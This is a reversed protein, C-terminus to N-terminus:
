LLCYWFTKFTKLFIGGNMWWTNVSPLVWALCVGLCWPYLALTMGEQPKHELRPSLYDDLFCLYLKHYFYTFSGTHNHLHIHPPPPKSKLYPPWPWRRRISFINSYLDLNRTPFSVSSTPASPVALTFSRPLFSSLKKSSGRSPLHPHIMTFSAPQLPPTSFPPCIKFSLLSLALLKLNM